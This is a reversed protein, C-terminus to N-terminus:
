ASENAYAGFMACRGRHSVRGDAEVWMECRTPLEGRPVPVRANPRHILGLSSSASWQLNWIAQRAFLIGSVFETREEILFTTSVPSGNAKTVEERTLTEVTPPQDSYPVVRLVTEGIGFVARALAPSDDDYLDSDNIAGQYVAIVYADNEGVIGAAKYEDLKRTKEELASRYRLMLRDDKPLSFGGTRLSRQFVANEGTGPTPAVAEVWCHAGSALRICIDPGRPAVPELTLGAKALVTILFLEWARAHFDQRFQRVFQEPKEPCLQWSFEWAQELAERVDVKTGHDRVALYGADGPSHDDFLGLPPQTTTM